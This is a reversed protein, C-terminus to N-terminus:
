AGHNVTKNTVSNAATSTVTPGGGQQGGGLEAESDAPAPAARVAATEARLPLGVPREPSRMRGRHKAGPHPLPDSGLQMRDATRWGSVLMWVVALHSLSGVTLLAEFPHGVVAGVAICLLRLDRRRLREAPNNPYARGFRVHYEKKVYSGLLFGTIAVFGMLYIWPSPHLSAAAFTVALGLAIDAYRDLITDLWGGRPTQMFKLRAIEGDCGDLISALQILLGGVIWWGASTTALAAAASLALVFSAVSIQNPTVPTEALVASLRRSLPRNLYQSVYGDDDGKTLTVYVRRKAERHAERTDVDLWLGGSVDVARVRGERICELIGETLSCCGLASARALGRFLVDTCYLLGTDGADWQELGKGIQTIRGDSILVKTLDSTDFIKEKLRDVGVVIEGPEPPSALVKRILEPSLLHDVMTLLFPREGIVQEAVEASCGNGKRWDEAVVFTMECSRRQQIDCFHSLVREHENGLVVVFRNVGVAQMQATCREGLSLGLIRVLPKPERFGDRQLRRGAGAALIVAVPPGIEPGTTKEWWRYRM